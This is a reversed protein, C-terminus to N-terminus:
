WGLGEYTGPDPPQPLARVLDIVTRSDPPADALAAFEPARNGIVIVEARSVVDALDTRILSWIHPIHTEIFQRNAGVLGARRVNDDYIEVTCGKGILLEVLSVVPSERLDDTGEKFSLGLVGVRRKGTGLVLDRALEIQHRNSPLVADLVPAVVDTQRALYTLARLDKPLCSGGFAFGPKLYAASLNLKTDACFADMVQHSDIGQAKCINGIENAFAVKLGHFANCAYKVMEASRLPVVFLPATLGEYLNILPEAASECATGIITFPPDYFDTISTGERLFEPNALVHFGQGHTQGSTRELAPIVVSEITGPLVTSRIVVHYQHRADRLASGIEECVKEVYQLDISGNSQSPTGVCVMSLESGRVAAAAELTARLRGAAVVEGVLEDLGAELIPSRGQNLTDIKVPNVDVGTVTHGDRALCAASVCGVYGMGFVTINM